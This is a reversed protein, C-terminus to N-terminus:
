LFQYQIAIHSRACYFGSSKERTGGSRPAFEVQDAQFPEGGYCIPSHSLLAFEASSLTAGLELPRFDSRRNGEAAQPNESEGPCLALPVTSRRNWWPSPVLVTCM